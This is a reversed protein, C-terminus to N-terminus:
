YRFHKYISNINLNCSNCLSIMYGLIRRVFGHIQLAEPIGFGSEFFNSKTLPDCIRIYFFKNWTTSWLDPWNEFSKVFGISGWSYKTCLRVISSCIRPMSHLLNERIWIQLSAFGSKHTWGKFIWTQPNSKLGSKQVVRKTSENRFIFIWFHQTWIM